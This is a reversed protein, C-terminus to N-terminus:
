SHCFLHDLKLSVCSESFLVLNLYTIDLHGLKIECQISLLKGCFQQVWRFSIKIPYVFGLARDDGRKQCFASPHGYGTLYARLLVGTCSKLEKEM